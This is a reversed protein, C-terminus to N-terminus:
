QFSVREGAVRGNSLLIERDCQGDLAGTNDSWLCTIGHVRTAAQVAPLLRLSEGPAVVILIRPRHVLARALAVLYQDVLSLDAALEGALHEIGLQNLVETVRMRAAASDSSSFRFLPIAVNEAVSFAPLLCPDAFLFGFVANRIERRVDEPPFSVEQGFVEISGADPRELLGLLHLLLTKGSGAPGTINILTAEAFEATLADVRSPGHTWEM